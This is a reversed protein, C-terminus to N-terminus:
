KKESYEKFKTELDAPNASGAHIVVRYRFTVPKGKEVTFDGSNKPLAKDFDSLGFPNASMLGYRRCHWTTPHRPNSPHDLITIGYSKDGIKGSIDCWTAAKGWTNPEGKGPGADTKGTSQTLVAADSISKVVRVSCLGAEKTDGFTVKDVIPDFTLTFDVGRSGDAYQFFRLGRTEKMMPQNDVDEWELQQELSDGEVKTFAIHRQKPSKAGKSISWHDAGNVEGHAVWMSRHHPHDGRTQIQDATIETGDSHLVPYMFPRIYHSGNGDAFWYTTFPKGDIEVKISKEEQKLKVVPADGACVSFM